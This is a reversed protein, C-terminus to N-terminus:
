SEAGEAIWDPVLAPAPSPGAATRPCALGVFKSVTEMSIPQGDLYRAERRIHEVTRRVDPPGYGLGLLRKAAKAHRPFNAVAYGRAEALAEVMAAITPAPTEDEAATRAEQAPGLPKKGKAGKPLPKTKLVKVGDEISPEANERTWNQSFASSTVCGQAVHESFGEAIADLNALYFTRCPLGRRETQVLGRAVLRDRAQAIARVSLCLRDAMLADPKHWWQGDGAESQWYLVQDILLADPVHGLWDVFPRRIIVVNEQGALAALDRGNM